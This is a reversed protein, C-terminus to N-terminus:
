EFSRRLPWLKGGYIMVCVPKTAFLGAIAPSACSIGSTYAGFAPMIMLSDSYCFCPGSVQARRNAWVGARPHYHGIIQPRTERASPQHRLAIGNIEYVDVREGQCFGPPNPDHNGSVWVWEPVSACLKHLVARDESIMREGAFADDFSDGLCIVRRPAYRDVIGALRLLTDHTDLAPALYGRRGARSGKELHLDSVVLTATDGFVLVGEADLTVATGAFAIDLTLPATM